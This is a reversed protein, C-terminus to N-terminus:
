PSQDATASGSWTRRTPTFHLYCDAPQAANRTAVILRQMAELNERLVGNMEWMPFRVRVRSGNAVFSSALVGSRRDDTAVVVPM